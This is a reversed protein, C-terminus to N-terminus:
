AILIGTEITAASPKGKLYFWFAACQQGFPHPYEDSFDEAQFDPGPKAPRSYGLSRYEENRDPLGRLQSSCGDFLTLTIKLIPKSNVDQLERSM